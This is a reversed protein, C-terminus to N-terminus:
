RFTTAPFEGAYKPYLGGIDKEQLFGPTKGWFLTRKYLAPAYFNPTGGPSAM